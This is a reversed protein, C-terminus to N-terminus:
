VFVSMEGVHFKRLVHLVCASGSWGFLVYMLMCLTFGTLVCASGPRGLFVYMLMCLTFGTCYVPLASGGRGCLLRNVPASLPPSIWQRRLSLFSPEGSKRLRLQCNTRRLTARNTHPLPPEARGDTAVACDGAKTYPLPPEARGDTAVSYNETKTHPFPLIWRGDGCCLFDGQLM